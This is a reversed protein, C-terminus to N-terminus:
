GYKRCASPSNHNTCCESAASSQTTQNTFFFEQRLEERIKSSTSELQHQLNKSNKGQREGREFAQVTLKEKLKEVEAQMESNKQQAAAALASARAQEEIRENMLQSRTPYKALYGHGPGKRSRCRTTEKYTEHLIHREQEKSIVSAELEIREAIKSFASEILNSHCLYSAAALYLEKWVVYKLKSNQQQKRKDGVAVDDEQSAGAGGQAASSSIWMHWPNVNSKSGQKSFATVATGIGACGRDNSVCM